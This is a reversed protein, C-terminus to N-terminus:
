GADWLQQSQGGKSSLCLRSKVSLLGGYGAGGAPPYSRPDPCMPPRREENYVHGHTAYITKGNLALLGYDAMMPFDLVMQDVESDCNGRVALIRDRHQNLMAIVKKPAYDKPLDNRPGHYLLDGLLILREAKSQGFADLTMECYYASGHIDSAFMYKM